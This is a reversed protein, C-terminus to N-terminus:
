LDLAGQEDGQYYTDDPLAAHKAIAAQLRDRADNFSPRSVNQDIARFRGRRDRGLVIWGYDYDIRDWTVLGLLREDVTSFWGAEQIILIIAPLRTYGALADFRKQSIEIM